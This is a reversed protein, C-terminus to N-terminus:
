RGKFPVDMVVNLVQKAAASFTDTQKLPWCESRYMMTCRVCSSYVREWTALSLARCSLLPLLERFKACIVRARTITALECGGDTSITDGLSFDLVDLTHGEVLM